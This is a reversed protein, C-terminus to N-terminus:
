SAVSLELTIRLHEMTSGLYNRFSVLWAQELRHYSIFAYEVCRLGLIKVISPLATIDSLYDFPQVSYM